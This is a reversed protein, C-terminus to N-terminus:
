KKLENSVMKFLNSTKNYELKISRVSLKNSYKSLLLDQISSIEKGDEDYEKYSTTNGNQVATITTNLILKENRDYVHRYTSQGNKLDLPMEDLKYKYEYQTVYFLNDQKEIKSIIYDTGSIESGDFGSFHYTGDNNKVVFFVKEIDVTTILGDAENGFLEILSNNFENFKSKANYIDEGIKSMTKFSACVALYDKPASKINSFEAICDPYAEPGVWISKIYDTIAKGYTSDLDIKEKSVTTNETTNTSFNSLAENSNTSVNNSLTNISTELNSIKTNLESVKNTEINKDNYLKFILCGMCIIVILALLLLITSLSIKFKKKNEM